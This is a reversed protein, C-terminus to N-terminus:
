RLPLAGLHEHVTAALQEASVGDAVPLEFGPVRAAIAACVDLQNRLREPTQVGLVFTSGLLLRPDLAPLPEPRTGQRRKLFYLAALPLPEDARRLAVYTKGSEGLVAGLTDWREPAILAREAPRVSAIAAGPHAWIEDDERSIALVDDTVFGAGRAVLQVALSTKGSGTAGAFAVASGGFDVASAHFAEHGRLVAAWPLIRGVLFRQWSWPEDDPPACLVRDGSPSIRALGFHRAFLRYGADPHADITRAPEGDDFREELVRTAGEGPWGDDIEAAPVIDMRTRPGRAPGTAPPLGPAEFSSEIELGFARSRRVPASGAADGGTEPQATRMM